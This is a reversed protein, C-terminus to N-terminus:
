RFIAAVKVRFGPVVSAGDFEDAERLGRVDDPSTIVKVTRSRPNIIVVMQAGAELWENVKADVETYRDGPSIVEVALDPAGPFYGGVDLNELRNTSVFAVDAARVTDPDRSLIFGTEAAYVVGLNHEAVFQALRWTFNVTIRGHEHGAPTM